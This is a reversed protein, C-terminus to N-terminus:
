TNATKPIPSKKRLFNLPVLLFHDTHHLTFCYPPPQFHWILYLSCSLNGGRVGVFPHPHKHKEWFSGAVHSIAKQTKINQNDNCALTVDQFKSWLAPIKQAKRFFKANWKTQNLKRRFPSSSKLETSSAFSIWRCQSQEKLLICWIIAWHLYSPINLNTHAM